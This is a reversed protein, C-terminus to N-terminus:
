TNDNHLVFAHCVAPCKGDDHVVALFVVSQSFYCPLCKLFVDDTTVTDQPGGLTGVDVMMLLKIRTYISGRRQSSPRRSREAM